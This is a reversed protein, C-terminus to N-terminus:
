LPRRPSSRPPFTRVMRLADNGRGYYDSLRSKETYGMARYFGIAGANSVDVELVARVAGAAILREELSRLLLKGYGLGRAEPLLDLTIIHGIVRKGRSWGAIGFGLLGSDSQLVLGCSPIQFLFYHLEARDYAIEPAFCLQDIEVMRFFDQRQFPRIHAIMANNM